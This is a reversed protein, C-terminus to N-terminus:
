QKTPTANVKHSAIFSAITVILGSVMEIVSSTDVISAAATAGRMTLIVGIVKLLGTALATAQDKNMTQGKNLTLFTSHSDM